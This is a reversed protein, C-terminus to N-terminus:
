ELKWEIRDGSQAALTSAGEQALAGNVYLAWYKGNAEKQDVGNISEVAIGFSYEKTGITLGAKQMLTLVTMGETVAVNGRFIEGDLGNVALEATKAQATANEAATQGAAVGANANQTELPRTATWRYAIGALVVLAIVAWLTKKNM